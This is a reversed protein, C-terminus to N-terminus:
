APPTGMLARHELLLARCQLCDLRELLAALGDGTTDFVELDDRGEFASADISAHFGYLRQDSSSSNVNFPRENVARLTTVASTDIALERELIARAATAPDTDAPRRGGPFDLTTRDVGPRFTEPPLYYRGAAEPIVIVSDAHETRWYDLTRGDDTAWREGVLSLWPTETRSMQSLRKWVPPPTM